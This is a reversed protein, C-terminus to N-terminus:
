TVYNNRRGWEYWHDRMRSRIGDDAKPVPQAGTIKELAVYWDGGRDRLDTLIYPVMVEGWEIIGRYAFHELKRQPPLADTTEHWWAALAAFLDAHTVSRIENLRECLAAFTENGPEHQDFIRAKDDTDSPVLIGGFAQALHKLVGVGRESAPGTILTCPGTPGSTNLHLYFTSGDDYHVYFGPMHASRWFGHARFPNDDALNQGLARAMATGLMAPDIHAGVYLQSNVSM